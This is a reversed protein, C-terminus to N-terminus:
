LRLTLLVDAGAYVGMAAAAVPPEGAVKGDGKGTLARQTMMMRM